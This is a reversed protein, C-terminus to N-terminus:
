VVPVVASDLNRPAARREAQAAVTPEMAEAGSRSRALRVSHRSPQTPQRQRRPARAKAGAVPTDPFVSAPELVTPGLTAPGLPSTPTSGTSRTYCVLGPSRPSQPPCVELGVSASSSELPFNSGYELIHLGGSAVTAATTARPFSTGLKAPASWHALASGLLASQAGPRADLVASSWAGNGANPPQRPTPAVGDGGLDDDSDGDSSADDDDADDDHHSQSPDLPPSRSGAQAEDGEVEVTLARGVKGFFVHPLTCALRAPDPCLILMRVPGDGPLSLPDVTVLKGITQSILELIHESGAEEPIGHIRVWVEALTAVTVPDV